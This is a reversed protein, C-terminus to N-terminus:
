FVINPFVMLFVSVADIHQGDYGHSVLGSGLGHGHGGSGLGIALLVTTTDGVFSFVTWCLMM